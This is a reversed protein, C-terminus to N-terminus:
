GIDMTQFIHGEQIYMEFRLEHSLRISPVNHLLVIADARRVGREVLRAITFDFLNRALRKRREKARVCIFLLKAIQPSSDEWSKNTEKTSIYPSIDQMNGDVNRKGPATERSPTRWEKSVREWFLRPMSWPHRLLFSRRWRNRNIVTLLFGVIESKEEAVVIVVRKDSLADQCIARYLSPNRSGGINPKIENMLSLLSKLDSKEFLRIAPLEREMDVDPANKDNV